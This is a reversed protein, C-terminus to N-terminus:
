DLRRYDPPTGEGAGHCGESWPVTPSPRARPRQGGLSRHRRAAFLYAREALSLQLAEALRALAHPPPRCM